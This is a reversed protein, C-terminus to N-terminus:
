RGGEATRCARGTSTVQKQQGADACLNTNRYRRFDVPETPVVHCSHWVEGVQGAPSAESEISSSTVNRHARGQSNGLGLEAFMQLSHRKVSPFFLDNRLGVASCSLMVVSICLWCVEEVYDLPADIDADEVAIGTAILVNKMM